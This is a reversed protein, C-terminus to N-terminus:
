GFRIICKKLKALVIPIFYYRMTQSETRWNRSDYVYTYLYIFIYTFIYMYIYICVGSLHGRGHIINGHRKDM